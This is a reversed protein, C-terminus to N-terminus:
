FDYKTYWSGLEGEVEENNMILFAGLSYCQNFSETYSNSCAKMNRHRKEFYTSSLLLNELLMTLM